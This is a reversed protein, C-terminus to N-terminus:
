SAGSRGRRLFNGRGERGLWREGDVVLEGRLFVKKVRGTVPQGGVARSPAAGCAEIYCSVGIGRLNGEAKAKAKRAPFGAYDIAKM